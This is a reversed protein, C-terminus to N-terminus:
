GHTRSATALGMVVRVWAPGVGCQRSNASLPWRLTARPKCIIWCRGPRQRRLIALRGTVCRNLIGDSSLATSWTVQMDADHLFTTAPRNSRSPRYGCSGLRIGPFPRTGARVPM